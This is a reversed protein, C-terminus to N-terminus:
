LVYRFLCMIIMVNARRLYAIIPIIYTNDCKLLESHYRYSPSLVCPHSTIIELYFIIYQNIPAFSIWFKEIQRFRHMGPFSQLAYYLLILYIIIATLRFAYKNNMVYTYIGTYMNHLIYIYVRATNYQLLGRGRTILISLFFIFYFFNSIYYARTYVRLALNGFYRTTNVVMHRPKGATAMFM